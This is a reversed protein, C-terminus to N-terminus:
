SGPKWVMLFLIVVVLVNNFAGFIALRQSLSDIEAAQPPPGSQGGAGPGAEVLERQLVVMRKTGRILVGHAVGLGVIYLGMSASLWAQDFKWTKDSVAVLILGLVFVAYIFLEAVRASVFENAETVALGEPGQRKKAQAAYIGNLMVGGFGVIACLIHLVLVFKYIGSNIGTAAVLM